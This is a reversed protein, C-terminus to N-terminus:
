ARRLHHAVVRVEGQHKDGRHIGFAHLQDGAGGVLQHGARGAGRVVVREGAAKVLVIRDQHHIVHQDVAIEVAAAAPGHLAAERSHVWELGAYTQRHLEVEDGGQQFFRQLAGTRGLEAAYLSIQTFHHGPAIHEPRQAVGHARFRGRPHVARVQRIVRRQLGVADHCRHGVRLDFIDDLAVDGAAQDVQRGAGPIEVVRLDIFVQRFVHAAGVAHVVHLADLDQFQHPIGDAALEAATVLQILDVVGAALVFDAQLTQALRLGGAVHVLHHRHDVAAQRLVVLVAPRNWM